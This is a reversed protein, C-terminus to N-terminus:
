LPTLCKGGVGVWGRGCVKTISGIFCEVLEEGNTDMVVFEPGFDCFLSCFVGRVSCSIFQSPIPPLSPLFISLSPPLSPPLSPSVKIPPRASRCFQDLRLQLALSADAVVVCQYDSLFSLDSTTDLPHTSATVTVYPNLQRLLALSAEARHTHAHDNVM